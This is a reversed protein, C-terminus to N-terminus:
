DYKIRPDIYAYAIDTLVVGILFLTSFFLTVGVAVSYDQDIISDFFLRGLGPIAFIEEVIVSGGLLTSLQLGVITILPLLANRFSHRVMIKREPIGYARATEVHESRLEEIMSSRTMRMLLATQATALTLVPMVLLMASEVPNVFPSTYGSAPLLGLHYTMVYILMLALWFNPTSIGALGAFRSVHDGAENHRAAGYIGLGIAVPLAVVYSLGMVVLTPEMREWILDTVPRNYVFSQGLDGQVLRWLHEFYQEYLPRDFGHSEILDDALEQGPETGLYLRVPDGPLAHMMIFTLTVIGFLVPVLQAFRRLTYRFLGM